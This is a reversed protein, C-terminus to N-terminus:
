VWDQDPRVPIMFQMIRHPINRTLVFGVNKEQQWHRDKYKEWQAFSNFVLHDCIQLIEDM